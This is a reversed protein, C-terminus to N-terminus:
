ERSNALQEIKLYLGKVKEAAEGPVQALTKELGAGLEPYQRVEPNEM